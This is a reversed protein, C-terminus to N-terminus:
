SVQIEIKRPKVAEQKPLTLVLVGLEFQARIGNVDADEPLKFVRNFAGAVREKYRYNQGEVEVRQKEGSIKLKGEELEVKVQEPKVGPLDLRIEYRDKGESIDVSPQWRHGTNVYRRLNDQQLQDLVQWPNLCAITM